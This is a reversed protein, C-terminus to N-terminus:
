NTIDDVESVTELLRLYVDSNNDNRVVAHLFEQGVSCGCEGVRNSIDFHLKLFRRGERDYNDPNLM